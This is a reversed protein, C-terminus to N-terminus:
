FWPGAGMGDGSNRWLWRILWLVALVALIIGVVVTCLDM